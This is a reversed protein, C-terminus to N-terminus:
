GCNKAEFRFKEQLMAVFADHSRPNLPLPSRLSLAGALSAITMVVATTSSLHPGIRKPRRTRFTLSCLSDCAVCRTKYHARKNKCFNKGSCVRSVQSSPTLVSNVPGINGNGAIKTDSYAQQFEKAVCQARRFWPCENYGYIHFCRSPLEPVAPAPTSTNQMSLLEYFLFVSLCAALFFLFLPFYHVYARLM